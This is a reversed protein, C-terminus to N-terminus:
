RIYGLSRLRELEEQSLSSAAESDPPLKTRETERRWERLAEALRAVDDPREPAIDKLDLPDKRRDYLEYENRGDPRAANHVLKLGSFALAYQELFDNPEPEDTNPKQAAKETVAPRERFGAGTGGKAFLLPVLSQGQTEAPERLGALRLITPAIDISQVTEEIELGAPVLGPARFLLPVQSLEGYASDGHFTRGHELFEEGHDSTFVVLTKRDLGLSLLRELLRGIEADMSRISGDYWDRDHRMHADPDFGAKVIEERTPMGMGRRGPDAITKKTEETRRVHEERAAPDAFLSDYPARPEFPSHPDFVHLFVFFPVDRHAEIWPLLRDVYERATKSRYPSDGDKISGREHLEEFGQHLNTFKGSFSVSSFSITARGADRFAEAITTASAPLRDTIQRVGHSLPYLGTLISPTSVKTWTAQAVCDRFLAGERALAALHPATERAYGYSDLHDRRLTDMMVLIVGRPPEGRGDREEAESRSRVAPAGWFGLVGSEGAGLSLSLVVTKGAHAALDIPTTEWRHPTTVTRELLVRPERAGGTAERISVRFTVPVDEVTGVALDLFPRSPLSVTTELTEGSRSVITERYIEDLGQWSPGSPISALHEKRFVLRLSEIEFRVGEADAPRLLVHRVDRAFVTGQPSLSYTKAEAGPVLPTALRWHSEKARKVVDAFDVKEAREFAVSLNAGGDVRARVEVSHLVDRDDPRVKREVRLIPHTTTTRGALLGNEVALDAIGSGAEFGRTAALPDEAAGAPADGDFRWETRRPPAAPAAAPERLTFSPFSDVFRVVAPAKKEDSGCAALVSVLFPLLAARRRASPRPNKM